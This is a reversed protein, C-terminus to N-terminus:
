LLTPGIYQERKVMLNKLPQTEELWTVESAKDVEVGESIPAIDEMKQQTHHSFNLTGITLEQDVSKIVTDPIHSYYYKRSEKSNERVLSECSSLQIM